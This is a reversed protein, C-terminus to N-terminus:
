TTSKRDLSAGAYDSDSFAELNFPLDRPYWIGLKPQGKLYRFIRKMARLHSVKPTVQFRACACVDFMIDPRSDTLYMLSRIMSRYLHVDMDEAEEDKLFAKNTEIPTSVTKVVVKLLFHAGEYLENPIEQADDPELLKIYVMYLKKERIFKDPFQPDEFGPPQCVYVEEKITGYLFASKVDMMPLDVLTWVKQLRFQLLEEQMAEVWSPDTLAQIVKKPEIQSLFSAFLCNQDDKHNTIKQKNIYSVLAHEESIKTMRRTQTASNIDGIIQYKPHDKYTRTTPILNVNMTTELNNLDAEAGVDENDYAGSFIGTPLDTTDELDPMLPDTPLDDNNVFSQGPASFSPSITSDKNANNVYGEKQQALLKDLEARLDHVHQDGQKNSAGGEKEQGNRKGKNAPEETIKKGADDAVADESSHVILFYNYCFINNVLYQMLMIKSVHMGILKIGHLLKFAKSNISYGVLYGEDTKGDFKGLPDLTNLITVPYGFPRMFIISPPRGHLLEYPTKNLPKTVLVRNELAFLDVMMEQYDTLFSKNGNTMHRLSLGSNFDRSYRDFSLDPRSPMYNGASPPPVAHYGEVKKFRGGRGWGEVEWGDGIVCVSDNMWLLLAERVMPKGGGGDWVGEWLVGGGMGMSEGGM